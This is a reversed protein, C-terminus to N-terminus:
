KKQKKISLAYHTGFAIMSMVFIYDLINLDTKIKIKNNNKSYIKNYDEKAKELYSDGTGCRLDTLPCNRNCGTCNNGKLYEDFTIQNTDASSTVDIVKIQEKYGFPELFNKYFNENIIVKIGFFLIILYIILFFIKTNKNERKIKLKKLTFKVMRELHFGLHISILVFFLYASFHHLDSWIHSPNIKLFSFIKNSIMISTIILLILNALVLNDLIFGIKNIVPLKKFNKFLQKISIWNFVKHTIFMVFVLVGILEHLKLNLFKTKMLLIMLVTMLIDLIIKKKM